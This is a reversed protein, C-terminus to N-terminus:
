SQQRGARRADTTAHGASPADESDPVPRLTGRVNIDEVGLLALVEAVTAGTADAIRKVASIKTPERPLGEADLFDHIVNDTHGRQKMRVYVWGAIREGASPPADPNTLTDRAAPTIPLPDPDGGELVSEVSGALWRYIAEVTGITSEPYSDREGNELRSITKVSILGDGGDRVFRARQRFGYGLEGRRRELLRGLRRWADPPYRDM